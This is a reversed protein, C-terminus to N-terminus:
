PKGSGETEDRRRRKQLVFLFGVIGLITVVGGARMLNMAAAGYRGTKPDYHYCMLLLQGVPGGIKGDAAEILALKLDKAPIDVGFLYRSVHGDPTLVVVGTAHAFQKSDADWIYRFGVSSTLKRIEPETGTLFHWGNVGSPRAYQALMAEQKGKALRPGESPDFSVTAVEFEEGASWKLAKMTSALGQMSMGCLMPCEYYVLSLVLPKKGLYDRLSVNTGNENRFAADLPVQAGLKQDFGVEKPPAPSQSQARAPLELSSLLGVAALLARRKV